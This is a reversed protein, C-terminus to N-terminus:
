CRRGPVDFREAFLEGAAKKAAQQAEADPVPTKPQAAPEGAAAICSALIVIPLLIDRRRLRM